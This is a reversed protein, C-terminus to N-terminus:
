PEFPIETETTVEGLLWIFRDVSLDAETLISDLVQEPLVLRDPVILTRAARELVTQGAARRRVRFGAACLAEVCEAGSVMLEAVAARVLLCSAAAAEADIPIRNDVANYTRLGDTLNTRV